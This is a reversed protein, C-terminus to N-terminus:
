GCSASCRRYDPDCEDAVSHRGRCNSEGSSRQENNSRLLRDAGLSNYWATVGALCADREATVRDVCPQKDRDCAVICQRRDAAAQQRAQEQAQRQEPTQCNTNVCQLAVSQAQLLEKSLQGQQNRASSRKTLYSGCNSKHDTALNLQSNLCTSVATVLPIDCSSKSSPLGSRQRCTNIALNYRNIEENNKDIETQWQNILRLSATVGSQQECTAVCQQRGPDTIQSSLVVQCAEDVAGDCNDDKKNGCVEEETPTGPVCQQQKGEVCAPVTRACEGTGCSIPLINNDVIGDLNDDKGNCRERCAETEEARARMTAEIAKLHEENLTKITQKLEKVKNECDQVSQEQATKCKLKIENLERECQKKEEKKKLKDCQEEKSKIEQNNKKDCLKADELKNCEQKKDNIRQETTTIKQQIANQQETKQQIQARAQKCDLKPRCLLEAQQNIHALETNLQEQQKLLLKIQPELEEKKNKLDKELQKLRDKCAKHNDKCKKDRKDCDDAKGCEQKSKDDINKLDTKITELSTQTNKLQNSIRDFEQQTKQQQKQATECPASQEQQPPCEGNSCGSPCHINEFADTNGDCYTEVLWCNQGSCSEVGGGRPDTKCVDGSSSSGVTVRGARKYNRGDDSDTCTPTQVAQMGTVGLFKGTIVNKLGTAKIFFNRSKSLANADPRIADAFISFMMLFCVSLIIIRRVAQM